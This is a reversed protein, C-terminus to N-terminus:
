RPRRPWGWQPRPAGSKRRWQRRAGGAALAALRTTGRARSRWPGSAASVRPCTRQTAPHSLPVPSVSAHARACRKEAESVGEGGRAACSGAAALLGWPPLRAAAQGPCPCTARAEAAAHTRAPERSGRCGCCFMGHVRQRLTSTACPACSSGMKSYPLEAPRSRHSVPAHCAHRRAHAAHPTLPTHHLHTSRPTRPVRPTPAHHALSPASAKRSGM